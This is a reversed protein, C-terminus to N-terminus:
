LQFLGSELPMPRHFAFIILIVDINPFTSILNESRLSQLLKGLNISDNQGHVCEQPFYNDLDNKYVDRLRQAKVITEEDCSVVIKELFGFLDFINDYAIKRKTLETILTDIITIFVNVRMDERGDFQTENVRTEDDQLKRRKFRKKNRQYDQCGTIRKGMREFDDFSNRLSNIFGNQGTYRIIFILQDTRSIDPTSDISISYYKCKKVEIQIKERIMKAICAIFEDCISKSTYSVNGRGQNAKLRLKIRKQFIMQLHNKLFPDFQAILELTALYNGSREEGLHEIRGRFALGQKSLFKVAALIRKLANRWYDEILRQKELSSDMKGQTKARLIYTTISNQHDLSREQDIIRDMHKWDNFGYVFANTNQTNPSNFLKCPLCYVRNTSSSYLLWDRRVTGGNVLQIYFMKRSEYRSEQGYVRKSNKFDLQDLDQVSSSKTSTLDIFNETVNWTAPDFQDFDSCHNHSDTESRSALMETNSQEAKNIKSLTPDEVSDFSETKDVNIQGAQQHSTMDNANNVKAIKKKFDKILDIIQKILDHLGDTEEEVGS